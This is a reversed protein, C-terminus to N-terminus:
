PQQAALVKPAGMNRALFDELEKFVTLRHSNRSLHHDGSELEVFRHPVRASKLAKDTAEGQEFPVSRDDTGHILLVPVKIREAQM